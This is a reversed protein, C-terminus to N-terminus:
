NGINQLIILVIISIIELINSVIFAIGMKNSAYRPKAILRVCCFSMLIYSILILM